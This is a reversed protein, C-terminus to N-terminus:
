IGRCRQWSLELLKRDQYCAEILEVSKRAEEGPVLPQEKNQIAKVWNGLQAIFIDSTSRSKLKVSQSEFVDGVVRTQLGTPQISIRPTYVSVELTAKESRIIITNRLNRLRSLEIFGKVGNKMKLHIQCDAELGGMNDDFYDFSDYDGFWWLVTDLLHAGTDALVGGGAMEKRFYFDSAIPGHFITGERADFSEIKGFFGSDLLAKVFQDTHRFRRVLGVALTAGSQQAASIMADCETTSLAMPKEVLVHIGRNLLDISIPAHLAHPLAVIAADVQELIKAYDEAVHPVGFRKALDRARVINKDVLATLEVKGSALAAPIHGQEAVAGCGIIGLKLPATESSAIM